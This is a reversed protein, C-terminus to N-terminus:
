EEIGFGLIENQAVYDMAMKLTDYNPYAPLDLRNFCTHAIPLNTM